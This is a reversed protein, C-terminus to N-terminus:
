IKKIRLSYRFGFCKLLVYEKGRLKRRTENSCRHPRKCSICKLNGRRFQFAVFIYYAGRVLMVIGFGASVIFLRSMVWLVPDWVLLDMRSVSFLGAALVMTFGAFIFSFSKQYELFKLIEWFESENLKIEM